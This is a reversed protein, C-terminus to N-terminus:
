ELLEDAEAELKKNQGYKTGSKTEGSETRAEYSDNNALRFNQQNVDADCFHSLLEGFEQLQQKSWAMQQYGTFQEWERHQPCLWGHRKSAAHWDICCSPIVRTARAADIEAQRKRDKHNRKSAATAEKAEGPTAYKRPRGRIRKVQEM